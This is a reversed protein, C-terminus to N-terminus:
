QWAFNSVLWASGRQEVSVIATQYELASSSRDATTLEHQVTVTFTMAGSAEAGGTQEVSIARTTRGQYETGEPLTYVQGQLAAYYEPTTLEQVESINTFAVDTSYTGFREAFNRTVTQASAQAPSVPPRLPTTPTTDVVDQVQTDEPIVPEPAAPRRLLFFLAILIAIVILVIAAILINRRKEPTMM